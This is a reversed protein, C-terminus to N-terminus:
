FKLGGMGFLHYISVIIGMHLTFYYVMQNETLVTLASVNGKGHEKELRRNERDWCQKHTGTYSDYLARYISTGLAHSVPDEPTGIYKHHGRTHEDWFHSYMMQTYPITGVIKHITEKNHVLEHGALSSLAHFFSIVLTFVISRMVSEPKNDLIAWDPQWKSSFIFLAYINIALMAFVFTWLPIYFMQAKLFAKENEKKLNRDDDLWFLNYLPTGIYMIWAGLLMNGTMMYVGVVALMM